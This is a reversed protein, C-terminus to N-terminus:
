VFNNRVLLDYPIENEDYSRIVQKENDVEMIMFESELNIGKEELMGGLISSARPKTFAGPLPTAFTIDVKDRIGREHFFWDALFLFELPAVPCKITIVEYLM